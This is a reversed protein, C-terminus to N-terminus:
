HSREGDLTHQFCDLVATRDRFAEEGFGVNKAPEAPCGVLAFAQCSKKFLSFRVPDAPLLVPAKIDKGSSHEAEGRKGAEQPDTTQIGRFTRGARRLRQSSPAAAVASRTEASPTPFSEEARWFESDTRVSGQLM